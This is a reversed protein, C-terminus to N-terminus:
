FTVELGEKAGNIFSDYINIKVFAYTVITIVLIPMILKSLLVM